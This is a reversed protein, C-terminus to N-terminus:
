LIVCIGGVGTPLRRAVRMRLGRRKRGRRKRGIRCFYLRRPNVFMRAIRGLQPDAGPHSGFIKSMETASGALERVRDGVRVSPDISLDIWWSEGGLANDHGCAICKRALTATNM